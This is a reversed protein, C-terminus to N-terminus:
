VILNCLLNRTKADIHLFQLGVVYKEEQDIKEVRVVTGLVELVQELAPIKIKLVIATSLHIPEECEFSLGTESVNRTTTIQEDGAPDETVVKYSLIYSREIRPFSRRESYFLCIRNKTFNKARYLAEDANKILEEWNAGDGPYYAVGGSITLRGETSEELGEFSHKEIAQRIREALIGASKKDTEPLLIAFEEGGYRAITDSMRCSSSFIGSIQQLALDGAIHGYHDNYEKFNDLDFFIVSSASKHRRCREVEKELTDNFHRKNYLGTLGDTLASRVTQEFLAIEVIKPNKVKRNINIFYDLLAVRFGICRHIGKEMESKNKLISDWHARAEEPGFDLHILVKILNAFFVDGSEAGLSNLKDLLRRENESDEDLYHIIEEFMRNSNEVIKMEAM